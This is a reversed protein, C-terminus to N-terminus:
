TTRHHLRTGCLQRNGSRRRHMPDIRDGIVTPPCLSPTLTDTKNYSYRAFITNRDNFRHDVRFDVADNDQTRENTFSTTPQGPGTPMPYLQM